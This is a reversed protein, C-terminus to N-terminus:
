PKTPYTKIKFTHFTKMNLLFNTHKKNETEVMITRNRLNKVSKLCISSSIIKKILFPSLKTLPTNELLELIIFKPFPLEHLLIEEDSNDSEIYPQKLIKKTKALTTNDLEM